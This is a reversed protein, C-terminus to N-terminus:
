SHHALWSWACAAYAAAGYKMCAEDFIVKPHHQGYLFGDEAHGTGISLYVSPVRLSIEAFDESGALKTDIQHVRDAGLCTKLVTDLEAAMAPENFLVPIGFHFIVSAQGGFALATHECIQVMRRKLNSRTAEAHTRLTGSLSATEPIINGATGAHLSGITLVTVEAPPAERAILEQLGLHIHCAINIPDIAYQPGAGHGGKGKVEITFSDCSAMVSGSGYYISGSDRAAATHMAVAADVTPRELIGADIMAQAGQGGEENPQFMFRVTGPIADKHRRLIAAAGLLMAAHLDHGCTHAAHPNMSQFPLQNEEQMPLADMDARLLICPSGSGLETTVGYGLEKPTYGMERLRQTIYIRTEPLDFGVEAHQHLFRRDAIIQQELAQSESLFDPISM